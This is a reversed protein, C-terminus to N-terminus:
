FGAALRVYVVNVRFDDEAMFTAGYAEADEVFGTLDFGYRGEVSLQPGFPAGIRVGLGVNAALATERIGDRDFVEGIPLRVEPGLAFFPQFLPTTAQFTVDLPFAIWSVDEDSGFGPIAGFDLDGAYVYLAGARLGLGGFGVGLQAGVHYGTSESLDFGAAQSLSGFNFGGVASADIRPVLQASAAPAALALLLVLLSRM